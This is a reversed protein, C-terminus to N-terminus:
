DHYFEGYIKKAHENYCISAEEATDFSGLYSGKDSNCQAIWRGYKSFVVGKFGSTNDRRKPTNRKNQANTAQRLNIFRNDSKNGNIHDVMAEPFNGTMYLFALRHAKHRHSFICVVWYGDAMKNGAVDGFRVGPARPKIWTFIGTEPCYHLHERLLEATLDTKAM